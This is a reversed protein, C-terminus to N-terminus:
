SGAVPISGAGPQLGRLDAETASRGRGLDHRKEPLGCGVACPRTVRVSGEVPLAGMPNGFGGHAADTQWAQKEGRRECHIIVRQPFEFPETKYM